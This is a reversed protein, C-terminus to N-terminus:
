QPKVSVYIGTQTSLFPPSNSALRVLGSSITTPIRINIQYVGPALGPAPGAYLIECGVAGTPGPGAMYAEFHTAISSGILPGMGTAFLSIVSGRAAPNTESNVSGDQNLAAALGKGSGDRTFLGAVAPLVAFDYSAIFDGRQIWLPAAASLLDPPIIANVQNESVYLLPLLRDGYRIRTGALETPYDADAGPQAAVGPTPGLGVGFISVIEGPALEGGTYSAANVLCSPLFLDMKRFDLRTLLLTGFSPLTTTFRGSPDSAFGAVHVIGAPDVAIDAPPAARVGRVGAYDIIKGTGPDIVALTASPDCPTSPRADLVNFISGNVTLYIRNDPGLVISGGTDEGPGGLYGSFIAQGTPNLKVLFADGSRSPMPGSDGGYMSQLAGPTVPFDRSRTTGVVYANQSADVAVGTALDVGSGGLYTAYVLSRGSPDLRAAFGHGFTLPGLTITGSYQPEFSGPTMKLDPSTTEGAIYASGTTDVAIVSASDDSSGGLFTGYVLTAGDPSIKAIFADTCPFYVTGYKDSCRADGIQPKYAGATASFDSKAVGTLYIAGTVDLAIGRPQASIRSSFVVTGQSSLKMFFGGPADRQLAGPTTQFPGDGYVSGALFIEGASNVRMATVIANQVSTEFLTKGSASVKTLFANVLLAPGSEGHQLLNSKVQTVAILTNGISDAAVHPNTPTNDLGIVSGAQPVNINTAFTVRSVAAASLQVAVLTVLTAFRCLKLETHM